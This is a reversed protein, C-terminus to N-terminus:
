DKIRKISIQWAPFLIGLHNKWRLLFHLTTNENKTNFIVTNYKDTNGKKLSNISTITCEDESIKDNYFKRDKPNYIMYIKQSQKRNKMIDNIENINFNNKQEFLYNNISDYVILCKEKKFDNDEEEKNYLIRFFKNKDYNDQHIIKLYDEKNPIELNALEGIKSVNGEDYFYEAYSIDGIMKDSSISLFQPQSTTKEGGFKFEVKQGNILFDSNNKRGALLKIDKIGEPFIDKIWADAGNRLKQWREDIVYWEEPISNILICYLLKERKNNNSDNKGRGGGTQIDFLKIDDKKEELLKECEEIEKNIDSMRKNIFVSKVKM